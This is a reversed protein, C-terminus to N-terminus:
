STAGAGQAIMRPYFYHCGHIVGWLNVGVIRQWGELPIYQMPGGIAVGANNVLIDVRGFRDYVNICFREVEGARSVDVMEALVLCGRGELEQQIRQLGEGDVDNIALHAGRRAFALAIERGIGSAAGTGRAPPPPGGAPAPLVFVVPKRIMKLCAHMQETTSSTKEYIQLAYTSFDRVMFDFIQDLLDNEIGLIAANELILQGYVVLTFLEGLTLLFDIDKQQGENPGAAMLMEKFVEIQERFITM